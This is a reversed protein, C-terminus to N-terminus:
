KTNFICGYKEVDTSMCVNERQSEGGGCSYKTPQLIKSIQGKLRAEEGHFM